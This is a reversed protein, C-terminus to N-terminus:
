SGRLPVTAPPGSSPRGNLNKLTDESRQYLERMVSLVLDCDPEDRAQVSELSISEPFSWSVTGVLLMMDDEDPNATRVSPTDGALRRLEEPEMGLKKIHDMQSLALDQVHQDIRRRDGRTLRNKITWSGGSPLQVIETEM